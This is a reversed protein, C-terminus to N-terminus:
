RGIEDIERQLEDAQRLRRRLGFGTWFALVVVLPLVSRLRESGLFSHGMVTVALTICALVLPGHWLWANRLHDRRRELEKRYYDLGTAALADGRPPGDGRIRDRFWFLSILIWLVVVLLGVELLPDGSSSLRWAIVAVFFLAAGISGWIEARTSSHLTRVRREVLQERNV